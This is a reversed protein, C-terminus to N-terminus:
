TQEKPQWLRENLWGFVDALLMKQRNNLLSPIQTAGFGGAEASISVVAAVVGLDQLEEQTFSLTADKGDDPTVTISLKM